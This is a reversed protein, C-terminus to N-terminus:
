QMWPPTIANPDAPLASAKADARGYVGFTTEALATVQRVADPPIVITDGSAVRTVEGAVEISAKGVIVHWIQESSIVHPPGSQNASMNVKWMSMSDSGGLSPSLLTSM